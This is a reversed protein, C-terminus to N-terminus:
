KKNKDTNRENLVEENEYSPIKEIYNIFDKSIERYLEDISANKKFTIYHADIVKSTNSDIIYTGYDICFQSEKLSANLTLYSWEKLLDINLNYGKKIKENTLENNKKIYNIIRKQLNKTKIRM